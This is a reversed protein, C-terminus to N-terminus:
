EVRIAELPDIRAARRAPLWCAVLGTLGLLMAMTVFTLPDTTSVDFVLSRLVRSLGIAGLAGLTLAIGVLAMSQRVVMGTVSHGDAGLAMRIGIERQRQRTSYAVVGYIGVAALLLALLAFAGLSV